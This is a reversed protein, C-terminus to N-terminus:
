VPQAHDVCRPGVDQVECDWMLGEDQAECDWMMFLRMGQVECDWVRLTLGLFQVECNWVRFKVTGCGSSWLRVGQVDTGCGEECDWVRFKV